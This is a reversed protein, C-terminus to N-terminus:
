MAVRYRDHELTNETNDCNWGGPPSPSWIILPPWQSVDSVLEPGAGAGARLVSAAALAPAPSPLARLM